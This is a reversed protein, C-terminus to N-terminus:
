TRSQGTGRFQPQGEPGFAHQYRDGRRLPKVLPGGSNGPNIAADTQIFPMQWSMPSRPILRGIGSVIGRTASATLGYPHGIALVDEGVQVRDSDGFRAQPLLATEGPVAVVAIDSVPDAGILKGERVDEASLRVIITSAGYVVHANTVIHGDGDILIGAGMAPQVRETLSFPDITLAFIRTVTPAVEVYVQEFPENCAEGAEASASLLGVCCGVVALAQSTKHM